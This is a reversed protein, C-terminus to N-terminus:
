RSATDSSASEAETVRVTRFLRSVNVRALVRATGHLDKVYLAQQEEMIKKQEESNSLHYTTPAEENSIMEEVLRDNYFIAIVM